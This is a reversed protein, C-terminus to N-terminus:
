RLRESVADLQVRRDGCSQTRAGILESPPRIVSNATSIARDAPTAALGTRAEAPTRYPIWSSAQSSNPGPVRLWRSAVNLRSPTGSTRNVSWQFSTAGRRGASGVEGLSRAYSQRRESRTRRPRRRYPRVGTTVRTPVGPQAFPPRVGFKAGGRGRSKRR